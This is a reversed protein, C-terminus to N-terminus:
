YVFPVLAAVEAKFATYREGFERTLLADERRLKVVLAILVIAFGIFADGTQAVLASGLLASVFGTYIPHRLCRYPGSRILEHAEKLTIMGSWNRGLHVRAWIAFALGAATLAMGLWQVAPSSYLPDSLIPPWHFTLYFGIGLPLMHQLRGLIGESSKTAKVFRASIFWYAAWIVWLVGNWALLDM